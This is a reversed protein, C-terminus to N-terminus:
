VTICSVVPVGQFDYSFWRVGDCSYNLSYETVWNGDLIDGQSAVASVNTTQLLDVQFWQDMDIAEACWAGFSSSSRFNRSFRQYTFEFVGEGMKKTGYTVYLRTFQFYDVM